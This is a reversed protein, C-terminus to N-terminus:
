REERNKKLQQFREQLSGIQTRLGELNALWDELREWGSAKIQYVRRKPGKSDEEDWSSEILGLEEMERLDRYIISSDLCEPDLGLTELQEIMEYGHSEGEALMLLLSPQLLLRVGKRRRQRCPGSRGRRGPM